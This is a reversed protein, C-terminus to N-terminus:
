KMTKQNLNVHLLTQNTLIDDRIEKYLREYQCCDVCEKGTIVVLTPGSSMIVRLSSFSDFILNLKTFNDETLYLDGVSMYPLDPDCLDSENNEIQAADLTFLLGILFVISFVFQYKM